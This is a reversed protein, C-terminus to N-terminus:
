SLTELKILIYVKRTFKFVKVKRVRPKKVPKEVFEALMVDPESGIEVSYSRGDKIDADSKSPSLEDTSATSATTTVERRPSKKPQYPHHSSQVMEVPTPTFDRTYVNENERALMIPPTCLIEIGSESDSVHHKVSTEVTLPQCDTPLQESDINRAPNRFVKPGKLETVTQTSTSSIESKLRVSSHEGLYEFNSLEFSEERNKLNRKSRSRGNSTSYQTSVSRESVSGGHRRNSGSHSILAQEELKEKETTVNRFLKSGKSNVLCAERKNDGRFSGKNKRDIGRYTDSRDYHASRSQRLKEHLKESRDPASSVKCARNFDSMYGTDSASMESGNRWTTPLSCVVNKSLPLRNRRMQDMEKQSPAYKNALKTQIGVDRVIAKPRPEQVLYKTSMQTGVTRTYGLDDFLEDVSHSFKSDEVSDSSRMSCSDYGKGGDRPKLRIRIRYLEEKDRDYVFSYEREQKKLQKAESFSNSLIRPNYIVHNANERTQTGVDRVRAFYRQPDLIYHTKMQTGVDRSGPGASGHYVYREREARHQIHEGVSFGSSDDSYYDDSSM